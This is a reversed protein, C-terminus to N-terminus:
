SLNAMRLSVTAPNIVAQARISIYFKYSITRNAWQGPVPPHLGTDPERTLGSRARGRGPWSRLPRRRSLKVPLAIVMRGQPRPRAAGVRFPSM